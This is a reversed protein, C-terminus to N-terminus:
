IIREFDCTAALLFLQCSSTKKAKSDKKDPISGEYISQKMASVTREHLFANRKIWEGVMNSEKKTGDWQLSQSMVRDLAPPFCNFDAFGLLSLLLLHLLARKM